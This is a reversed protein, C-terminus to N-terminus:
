KKTNKIKFIKKTTTGFISLASINQVGKQVHDAFKKIEKEADKKQIKVPLQAKTKATVDELQWNKISQDQMFWVLGLAIFISVAAAYYKKRSNDSITLQVPSPNKDEALISTCDFLAKYPYHKSSVAGSSFYRRLIKEEELSTMGEFYKNLINDIKNYDTNM